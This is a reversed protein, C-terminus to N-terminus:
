DDNLSSRDFNDPSSCLHHPEGPENSFSSMDSDMLFLWPQISLEAYKKEISVDEKQLAYPNFDM